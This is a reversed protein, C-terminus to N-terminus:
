HRTKGVGVLDDYYDKWIIGREPDGVECQRVPILRGDPLRRTHGLRIHWRPSAHTGGLDANRSPTEHALQVIRYEISPSGLRRGMRGVQHRMPVIEVQRKPAVCIAWMNWLSHLNYRTATLTPNDAGQANDVYRGTAINLLGVSTEDEDHGIEMVHEWYRWQKAELSCFYTIYRTYDANARALAVQVGVPSPWAYLGTRVPPRLVGCRQLTRMLSHTEPAGRMDVTTGALLVPQMAECQTFDFIPARTLANLLDHDPWGQNVITRAWVLMTSKIRLITANPKSM